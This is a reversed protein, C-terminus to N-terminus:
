KGELATRAIYNRCAHPFKCLEEETCDCSFMGLAARLREIEAAAEEIAARTEANTVPALGRLREVIDTM